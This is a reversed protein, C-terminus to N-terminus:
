ETTFVKPAPTARQPGTQGLRSPPPMKWCLRGGLLAVHGSHDHFAPSVMIHHERGPRRALFREVEARDFRTLGPVKAALRSRLEAPTQADWPNDSLESWLVLCSYGAPHAPRVGGLVGRKPDAIRLAIQPDLGPQRPLTMAKWRTPRVQTGFRPESPRMAAHSHSARTRPQGVGRM